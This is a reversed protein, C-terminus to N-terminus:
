PGEQQANKEIRENEGYEKSKFIKRLVKEEPV